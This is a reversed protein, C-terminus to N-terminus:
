PLPARFESISARRQAWGRPFSKPVRQIQAEGGAAVRALWSPGLGSSDPEGWLRKGRWSMLGSLPIIRYTPDGPLINAFGGARGTMAAMRGFCLKGMFSKWTEQGGVALQGQGTGQCGIRDERVTDPRGLQPGRARFGRACAQAERRCTKTM